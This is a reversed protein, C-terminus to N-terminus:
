VWYGFGSITALMLCLPAAWNPLTEWNNNDIHAALTSAGENKLRNFNPIAYPGGPATGDFLKKLYTGGLGDVSIEIVYQVALAPTAAILLVLVITSFFASWRCMNGTPIRRMAIQFGM